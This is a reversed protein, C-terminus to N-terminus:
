IRHLFFCRRLGHNDVSVLSPCTFVTEECKSPIKDTKLIMKRNLVVGTRSRELMKTYEDM